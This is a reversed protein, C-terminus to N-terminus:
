VSRLAMADLRTELSQPEIWGVDVATRVFAEEDGSLWAPVVCLHNYTGLRDVILMTETLASRVGVEDHDLSAVLGAAQSAFAEGARYGVAQAEQISRAVASRAEDTAGLRAYAVARATDCKAIEVRNGVRTNLEIAAAALRLAREPDIWCLTEVLNTHLKAVLGPANVETAARLAQLYLREAQDFVFSFRFAHARHRVVEAWDLLANPGIREAAEALVRSAESLEGDMTLMDAHYLRARLHTRDTPDFPYTAAELERFEERAFRYGGQLETLYAVEIRFARSGWTRLASIRPEISEFRALALEVGTTRRSALAAFLELLVTVPHDADADGAPAMARLERWLGADHLRYTIDLLDRVSADPVNPLSAWGSLFGRLMALATDPNALLGDPRYLLHRTAAVLARRRQDVLAPSAAVFDVLIDHVEFLGAIRSVFFRDTLHGMAVLSLPINLSRVVAAFTVEDFVRMTAVAVAAERHAEPMHALLHEVSMEPTAPLEDVGLNPELRRRSEYTDLNADLFFPICKSASLMKDIIESPVEGLRSRVMTRADEAPLAGVPVATIQAGWVDADWGLPERSTMVHVGFGLTTLLEQLWPARAEITASSQSDYGDYFVVLSRGQARLKRTLDVALCRPLVRELALPDGRLEDIAEFEEQQYHRLLDAKNALRKYVQLAFKVPLGVPVGVLATFEGAAEIADAVMGGTRRSPRRQVWSYGQADRLLAVATEFLPCEVGIGDRLIQLPGASSSAAESALPVWAAPGVAALEETARDLERMLRTKGVGGFGAVAFIRFQGPQADLTQISTWIQHFEATRDLFPGRDRRPRLRGPEVAESREM